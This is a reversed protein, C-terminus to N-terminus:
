TSNVFRSDNLHLVSKGNSKSGCAKVLSSVSVNQKFIAPKRRSSLAEELAQDLDGVIPSNHEKIELCFFHSKNFSYIMILYEHNMM